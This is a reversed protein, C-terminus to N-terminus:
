RGERPKYMVYRDIAAAQYYNKDILDDIRPDILLWMSDPKPTIIVLAPQSKQWQDYLANEMKKRFADDGAMYFTSYVYPTPLRREAFFLTSLSTSALFRNQADFGEYFYVADGKSCNNKVYEVLPVAANRQNWLKAARQAAPLATPMMAAAALAMAALQGRTLPQWGGLLRVAIAYVAYLALGCAPLTWTIVYHPYPHGSLSSLLMEVVLWLPVFLLMLSARKTLYQWVIIAAGIASLPLFPFQSFGMSATGAVKQMFTQPLVNSYRVNHLFSAQIFNEFVGRWAFYASFAASVLIVPLLM